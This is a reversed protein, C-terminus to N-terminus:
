GACAEINLTPRTRKERLAASLFHAMLFCIPLFYFLNPVLTALEPAHIAFSAAAILTLLTPLLFTPLLLPAIAWTFSKSWPKLSLIPALLISYHIWAVPSALIAATLAIGSAVQASPRKWLVVAFSFLLLAFSLAQGILKHGFRAAFGLLSVNSPFLWHQDHSIARLWELYIGPGYILVPVLCAALFTAIATKAVRPFGCFGLFIPWLMYNPKAAVLIGLCIGAALQKNRRILLWAAVALLLIFAYDQGILIADFAGPGLMMWYIQRHQMTAEYERLLLAASGLFLLTSLITWIRVAIGPSIHAWAALFPLLAPPSLDLDAVLQGNHFPRLKYTLPYVGYPNLHHSAAQGSAWFSGFVGLQEQSRLNLTHFSVVAGAVLFLSGLAWTCWLLARRNAQPSDPISTAM